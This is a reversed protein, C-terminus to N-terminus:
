FSQSDPIFKRLLYTIISSDLGGSFLVAIKSETIKYEKESKNEFSTNDELKKEEEIGEKNDKEEIKQNEKDKYEIINNVLNKINNELCKLIKELIEDQISYNKIENGIFIEKGIEFKREEIKLFDFNIPFKEFNIFIISNGPLDIWNKNLANNFDAMYKGQINDDNIEEENKEVTKILKENISCSCFCIGNNENIGFLLSRKGFIDKSIIVKCNVFDTFILSFDGDFCNLISKVEYNYNDISVTNNFYDSLLNFIDLLQQTDNKLLDFELMKNKIKESKILLVKKKELEGYKEM